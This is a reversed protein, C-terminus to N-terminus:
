SRRADRAARARSALWRCFRACRTPPAPSRPPRSRSARSGGARGASPWRACGRRSSTPLLLDAAAASAGLARRRRAPRGDLHGVGLGRHRQARRAPGAAPRPRLAGLGAGPLRPQAGVGARVARPRRARLLPRQAGAAVSAWSPSGRTPTTPVRGTRLRARRADHRCQLAFQLELRVLEACAARLRLAARERHAREPRRALLDAPTAAPEDAGCTRSTCTTPTASATSAWRRSAAARCGAAVGKGSARPGPPRRGRPATPAGPASGAGIIPTACAARSLGLAPVRAGACRAALALTKLPRAGARVWREVDPRGDTRWQKGHAICLFHDRKVHHAGRAPCGSVACVRASCCGIRRTPSTSTLARVGAADRRAARRGRLAARAGGGALAALASTM